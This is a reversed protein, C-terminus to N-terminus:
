ARADANGARWQAYGEIGDLLYGPVRIKRREDYLYWELLWRTRDDVLKRMEVHVDSM